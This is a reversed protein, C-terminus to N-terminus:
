GIGGAREIAARQVPLHDLVLPFKQRAVVHPFVSGAYDLAVQPHLHDFGLVYFGSNCAGRTDVSRDWWVFALWLPKGGCTWHVRGDPIDPVERNVLFGTDLLDRTWPFGDGVWCTDFSGSIRGHGHLFHGPADWCGFYLARKNPSVIIGTM